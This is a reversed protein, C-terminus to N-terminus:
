EKTKYGLMFNLKEGWQEITNEYGKNKYAERLESLLRQQAQVNGERIVQKILEILESHSINLVNLPHNELEWELYKNYPRLRGELAFAATLFPAICEIADLWSATQREDRHNKISRYVSNVFSGASKDILRDAEDKPLSAKEDVMKQIDGNLKDVQVKLYSFGYRAWESGSGYTAYDRFDSLSYVKPKLLTTKLNSKYEEAVEDKAILYTDWDSNPTVTNKARSGALFFGIINDDAEAQELLRKYEKEAQTEQVM